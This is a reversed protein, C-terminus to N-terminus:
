AVAEFCALLNITRDFGIEDVIKALREQPGIPERALV